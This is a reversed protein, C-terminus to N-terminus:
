IAIRREIIDSYTSSLTYETVVNHHAILYDLAQTHRKIWSDYFQEETIHPAIEHLEKAVEKASQTIKDIWFNYEKSTM